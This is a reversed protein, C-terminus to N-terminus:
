FAEQFFIYYSVASAEFFELGNAQAFENGLDLKTVNAIARDESWM